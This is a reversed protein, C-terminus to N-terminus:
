TNDVYRKANSQYGKIAGWSCKCVRPSFGPTSNGQFRVYSASRTQDYSWLPTIYMMYWTIHHSMMAIGDGHVIIHPSARLRNIENAVIRPMASNFHHFGQGHYTIPLTLDSPLLPLYAPNFRQRVGYLIGYHILVVCNRLIDFPM